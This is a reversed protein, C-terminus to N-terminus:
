QSGPCGGGHREPPDIKCASRPDINFATQCKLGALAIVRRTREWRIAFVTKDVARVLVLADSVVLLPPTDLIVLDYTEALQHLVKRMAESALLDTPSPVRSGATIYHTGSQPDVDVVDDLVARGALLDSLGERNPADLQVHLSSHRFDCDLIITNQGGKAATTALAVAMTTKGEGPVSSTVLISRPPREASSLMLATRLSRVAEAYASNPQALAIQHPRNGEERAKPLAPVMGLAPLGSQSELQSASRFGNDLFEIVFALVIGIAASIVLAAAIMLQRNPYYPGGPATARSIIRADAQQESDELIDTEKLHELFTEYLSRNAEQENELSALTVGADNQADLLAQVRAVETVLNEVRVRVIELENDLSRVVKDVEHGIAQRLDVLENQALRLHPHGSRFTTRLEALKRIVVAEQERLRSILGSDLVAAITEPGAGERILEDVQHRRARGESLSGRATLLQENLETIQRQYLTAGDTDTLGVRRRFEAIDKESAIVQERLDNVRRTLFETARSTAEGKESQQDLIYTDATANAALAAFEPDPSSYNVSIVRSRSSPVVTLGGLYRDTAIERLVQRREPEPLLELPHPERAEPVAALLEDDGPRILKELLWGRAGGVAGDDRRAAPERLSPNFRPDETLRLRDVVQEALARSGIVAAETENTYFDPTLGQVVSEIDVVNQRDPEVVILAEASYLPTLRSVFITATGTIALMVGAIMFKRRRLVGLLFRLNLGGADGGPSFWGADELGDDDSAPFQSISSM